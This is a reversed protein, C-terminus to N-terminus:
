RERFREWAGRLNIAEKIMRVFQYRHTHAYIYQQQTQKQQGICIEDGSQDPSIFPSM